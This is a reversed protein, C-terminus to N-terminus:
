GDVPSTVDGDHPSVECLEAIPPGLPNQISLVESDGLATTADEKDSTRSVLPSRDLYKKLGFAAFPIM